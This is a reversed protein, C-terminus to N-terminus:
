HYKRIEENGSININIKNNENSYHPAYQIFSVGEENFVSQSVEKERNELSIELNEKFDSLKGFVKIENIVNREFSQQAIEKPYTKILAKGLNIQFSPKFSELNDLFRLAFYDFRDGYRKQTSLNKVHEEIDPIETNEDILSNNIINQFEEIGLNPRFKAKGEEALVSFLEDPCRSLYNLMDLQLAQEPNDSIFKESPLTITFSMFVERTAIFSRSSTNKFGKIRNIFQIAFEKELFLCIFFVLGKETILNNQDVLPYKRAIEFDEELFVGDYRKKTYEIAREFNVRLFIALEEDIILKRKISEINYTKAFFHSYDNRFGDLESLAKKFFSALNMFDTSDQNFGELKRETKPLEDSSFVKAIPIRKILTQFVHNPNNVIKNSLWFNANSVDEDDLILDYGFKQALDNAILFVNHRAMNLYTGFYQPDNTLTRANPFNSM